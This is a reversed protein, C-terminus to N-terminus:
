SADTELIVPLRWDFKRVPPASVLANKINQWSKVLEATIVVPKNKPGISQDSSPGALVSFNKILCRLHGAVSVLGRIESTTKPM